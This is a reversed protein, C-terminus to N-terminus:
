YSLPCRAGHWGSLRWSERVLGRRWRARTCSMPWSGTAELRKAWGFTVMMLALKSQAYARVMGWRRHGELDAPDIRARDSTSSGVNVIRAGGSREAAARLAPVLARTLVFPSLHNTAIVREHGEATEERRACFTGANNVLLDIEPYRADILMGAQRAAATSSLDAVLLEARADPVRNRIWDLAEDGRARHRGILM